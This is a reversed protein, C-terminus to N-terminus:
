LKYQNKVFEYFYGRFLTERKRWKNGDKLRMFIQLGITEM